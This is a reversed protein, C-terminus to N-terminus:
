AAHDDQRQVHRVDLYGPSLSLRNEIDRALEEGIRRRDKASDEPEALMRSVNPAPRGIARAFAAQNGNFRERVLTLLNLRRIAKASMGDHPQPSAGVTAMQRYRLPLKDMVGLRVASGLVRDIQHQELQDPWQSIRGRTVGIARALAAATRGFVAIAEQKSMCDMPKSPPETGRIVHWRYGPASEEARVAGGSEEEIAMALGPSCQACDYAVNLLHGLTTDCRRAFDARANGGHPFTKLYDLLNM